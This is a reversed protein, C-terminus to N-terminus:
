SKQSRQTFLKRASARVVETVGKDDKLGKLDRLALRNILPLVVGVPCKPNRALSILIKYKSMWDRRMTILRLVEDDVNRMGAILEAETESVRPNRIVASCVLKNRDRILIMRETKGGKFGLQVKEAVSMSLIRTFVSQKVPDAIESAPVDPPPQPIGRADEEAAKELLDAIPFNPLDAVQDDPLEQAQRAKKEFFEERTELARRRAENSLRPNALLADLIEPARLIRAQNIVIVEQTAPDAEKALDLIAQDSVARNRILADLVAQNETARILMTLHAPPASENAAFSLLNRSPVESLSTQAVSVVEADKTHILFALVAILDDQPLPLFGRALNMVTERPFQGSEIREIVTAATLEAPGASSM